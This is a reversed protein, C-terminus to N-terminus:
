ITSLPWTIEKQMKAIAHAHIQQARRESLDLQDAIERWTHDHLRWVVVKFARDDNSLVHYALDVLRTHTM